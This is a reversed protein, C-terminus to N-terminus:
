AARASSRSPPPAEGGLKFLSTRAKLGEALTLLKIAAATTEEAMAANEQSGGDLRAVADSIDDLDTTQRRTSGSIDSVLESADAIMVTMSQLAAETKNVLAVGEEIRQASVSILDRIELASDTTRQALARVESAVVAFGRGAEGARAAEVRRM